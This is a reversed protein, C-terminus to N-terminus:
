KFPVWSLRIYKCLANPDETSKLIAGRRHPEEEWITTFYDNADSVVEKSIDVWKLVLPGVKLECDETDQWWIDGVTAEKPETKSHYVKIMKCVPEEKVKIAGVTIADSNIKIGDEDVKLLNDGVINVLVKPEDDILFGDSDYDCPHEKPENVETHHGEIGQKIRRETRELQAGIAENIAKITRENEECPFADNYEEVKETIVDLAEHVQLGNIGVERQTGEQWKIQGYLDKILEPKHGKNLFALVHYIADTLDELQEETFQPNSSNEILIEQLELIAMNFDGTENAKNYRKMAESEMSDGEEEDSEFKINDVREQISDIAKDILNMVNELNLVPKVTLEDVSNETNIAEMEAEYTVWDKINPSFDEGEQALDYSVGTVLTSLLKEDLNLAGSLMGEGIISDPFSLKPTEIEDIQATTISDALLKVQEELERHKQGELADQLFRVTYNGEGSEFHNHPPMIPSGKLFTTGKPLYSGTDITEDEEEKLNRTTNEQRLKILEKTIAENDLELVKVKFELAELRKSNFM